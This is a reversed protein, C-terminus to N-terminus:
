PATCNGFSCAPNGFGLLEDDDGSGACNPPPKSFQLDLQIGWGTPDFIYHIMGRNCYYRTSPNAEIYDIIYDASGVARGDIAYHNDYWKDDACEPNALRAAHVANLMKEFDAPKFRGATATDPRQVFCVDVAAGAWLFCRTTATKATSTARM